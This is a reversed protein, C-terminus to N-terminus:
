KVVKLHPQQTYRFNSEAISTTYAASSVSHHSPASGSFRSVLHEIRRLQPGYDMLRKVGHADVISRGNPRAKFM